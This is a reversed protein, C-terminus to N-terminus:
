EYQLPNFDPDIGPCLFRNLNKRDPSFGFRIMRLHLDSPRLDKDWLEEAELEDEPLVIKELERERWSLLDEGLPVAKVVPIKHLGEGKAHCFRKYYTFESTNSSDTPNERQSYRLVDIVDIYPLIPYRTPRPPRRLRVVITLM